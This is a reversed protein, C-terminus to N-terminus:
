MKHRPRLHEGRYGDHAFHFRNQAESRLKELREMIAHAEEILQKDRETQVERARYGMPTPEMVYRPASVQKLLDEAHQRSAIGDSPAESPTSQDPKSSQNGGEGNFAPKLGDSPNM